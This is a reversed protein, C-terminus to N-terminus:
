VFTNCIHRPSRHCVSQTLSIPRWQVVSFLVLHQLTLPGLASTFMKRKLTRHFPPLSQGCWARSQRSQCNLAQIKNYVIGLYM